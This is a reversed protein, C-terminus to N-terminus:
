ITGFSVLRLHKPNKTKGQCNMVTINKDGALSFLKRLLGMALKLFQFRDLLELFCYLDQIKCYFTCTKHSQYLIAM